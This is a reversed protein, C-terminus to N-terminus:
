RGRERDHDQSPTRERRQERERDREREALVGRMRDYDRTTLARDALLVAHWHPHSHSPGDHRVAMWQAAFRADARQQRRAAAREEREGRRRAREAAARGARERQRQAARAQRELRRAAGRYALAGAHGVASAAAGAAGGLATELVREVDKGDLVAWSTSLIVRYVRFVPDPLRERAAHQHRWRDAIQERRARDPGDERELFATIRAELRAERGQRREATREESRERWAEKRAEVGALFRDQAEALPIWEGDSTVFWRGRVQPHGRERADGEQAERDRGPRRAYYTMAAAIRGRWAGAGDIRVPKTVKVIAV